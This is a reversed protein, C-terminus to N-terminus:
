KKDYFNGNYVMLSGSLNAMSAELKVSLKEDNGEKALQFDIFTKRRDSHQQQYSGVDFANWGDLCSMECRVFIYPM